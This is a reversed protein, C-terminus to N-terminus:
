SGCDDLVFGVQDGIEKIMMLVAHSHLLFTSSFCSLSPPQVSNFQSCYILIENWFGPPFHCCKSLLQLLVIARYKRPLLSFLHFSFPLYSLLRTSCSFYSFLNFLCSRSWVVLEDNEKCIICLNHWSQFLALAERLFGWPLVLSWCSFRSCRVLWSLVVASNKCSHRFLKVLIHSVITNEKFSVLM